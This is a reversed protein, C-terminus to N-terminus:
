KKIRLLLIASFCCCTLFKAFTLFKAQCRFALTSEQLIRCKGKPAPTLFKCFFPGSGFGSKWEATAPTQTTM